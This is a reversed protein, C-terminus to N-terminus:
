FKMKRKNFMKLKEPVDYSMKAVHLPLFSLFWTIKYYYDYDLYDILKGSHAHAPRTSFLTPISTLSM